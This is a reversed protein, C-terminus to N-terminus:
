TLLKSELTLLFLKIQNKKKTTFHRLKKKLRKKDEMHYTTTTSSIFVLFIFLFLVMKYCNYCNVLLFLKKKIMANQEQGDQFPLIKSIM